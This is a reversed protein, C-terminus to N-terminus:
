GVVAWFGAGERGQGRAGPASALGAWVALLMSSIKLYVFLCVFFVSM